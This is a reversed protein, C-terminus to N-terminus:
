GWSSIRKHKEVVFHKYIPREEPEFMTGDERVVNWQLYVNKSETMQTKSMGFIEQAALNCEIIYGQANQVIIGEHMTQFITRIEAESRVLLKTKEHVIKYAEARTRHLAHFWRGLVVSFLIGFLAEVYPIYQSLHIYLVENAKFNFTWERGYLNITRISEYRAYTLEPKSDYLKSKADMVIGDYIEYHINIYRKDLLEEFLTKARIAAFVYGILNERKQANSDIIADKKFVPAYVIFGVRDESKTDLMFEVKPSLTGLGRELSKEMTAKRIPDSAINFGIAKANIANFPEIYLIPFLPDTPLPPFIHFNEFGKIRMEEQYADRKQAPIASAYGVVEVGPFRKELNHADIYIKWDEKSVHNSARFFAASSCVMQVNSQLQKQTLFLIQDVAIKFRDKEANEIWLSSQWAVLIALLSGVFVALYSFYSFDLLRFFAKKM